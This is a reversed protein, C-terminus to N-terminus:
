RLLPQFSLFKVFIHCMRAGGVENRGTINPPWDLKMMLQMEPPQNGKPTPDRGGFKVLLLDLVASSLESIIPKKNQLV